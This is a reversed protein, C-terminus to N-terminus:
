QDVVPKYFEIMILSLTGNKVPILYKVSATVGSLACNNQDCFLILFQFM